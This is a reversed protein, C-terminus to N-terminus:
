NTSSSFPLGQVDVNRLIQNGGLNLSVDRAELITKGYEYGATSAM